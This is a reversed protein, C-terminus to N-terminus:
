KEEKHDEKNMLGKVFTIAQLTSNMLTREKKDTRIELARLFCEKAEAYKEVEMLCKGKHQLAFDKYTDIEHTECVYLAKDFCNFAREFQENYKYAEGLRILTIVERETDKEETADDLCLTLYHIAETPQESVRLLNGITGYLFYHNEEDSEELLQMAEVILEQIKEPDNTKERLYDNEDFYILEPLIGLKEKFRQVNM